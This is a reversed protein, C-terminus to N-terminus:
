PQSAFFHKAPDAASSTPSTIESHLIAASSDLAFIENSADVGCAAAARSRQPVPLAATAMHSSEGSSPACVGNFRNEARKAPRTQLLAARYSFM